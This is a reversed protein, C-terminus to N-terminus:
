SFKILILPMLVIAMMHIGHLIMMVHMNMIFLMNTAFDVIYFHEYVPNKGPTLFKRPDDHGARELHRIASTYPKIGFIHIRDTNGIFHYDKWLDQIVDLIQNNFYNRWCEVLAYPDRFSLHSNGEYWQSQHTFGNILVLHESPQVNM